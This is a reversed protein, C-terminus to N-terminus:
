NVVKVKGFIFGISKIKYWIIRCSGNCINGVIVFWGSVCYSVCYIVIICRNLLDVMLYYKFINFSESVVKSYWFVLFVEICWKINVICWGFSIVLLVNIVCSVM